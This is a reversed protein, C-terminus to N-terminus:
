NLTVLMSSYLLSGPSSAVNVYCSPFPCDQSGARDLSQETLSPYPSKEYNNYSPRGGKTKLGICIYIKTTRKIVISIGSTVSLGNLEGLYTSSYGGFM